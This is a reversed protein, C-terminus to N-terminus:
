FNISMIKVVTYVYRYGYKRRYNKRRKKKFVTIKKGFFHDLIQITLTFNLYPYGSNISYLSHYNYTYLLKNCILEKGIDSLHFNLIITDGVSVHYQKNNIKFIADM